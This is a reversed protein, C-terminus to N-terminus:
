TASVNEVSIGNENDHGVDATFKEISRAVLRVGGTVQRTIEFAMVVDLPNLIKAIVFSGMVGVRKKRSRRYRRLFAIAHCRLKINLHSGM